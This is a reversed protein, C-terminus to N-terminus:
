GWGLKRYPELFSYLKSDVGNILTVSDNETTYTISMRGISESKIGRKDTTRNEHQAKLIAEGGAIVDNPFEVLKIKFECKDTARRAEYDIIITDGEVSLVHYIGNPLGEAEEIIVTDMPRFIQEEVTLVDGHVATVMTELTSFDNQTLGIISQELAKVDSVTMGDALDHPQILM